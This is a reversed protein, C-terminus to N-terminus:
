RWSRKMVLEGNNVKLGFRAVESINGMNYVSEIGDDKHYMSSCSRIKNNTLKM